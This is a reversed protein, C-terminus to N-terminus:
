SKAGPDTGMYSDYHKKYQYYPGYGHYAVRSHPVDNMVVALNAVGVDQFRQLTHQVARKRSTAPRAMVLVCNALGALSLADSVIGLPPADIIIRDFNARAWALLDAVKAGGVLEAPRADGSSRSAIISLNRCESPYVIDQPRADQSALYELLGRQDTPMPFIGGVRPRRLDFDVLLTKQGNLACATALNCCTTTKGEEPLSSAVLIMQTQERYVVSDLVSRLGAFAEAMDKFCQTYSATAIKKRNSTKVHPIIALIKIGTRAEIDSADVVRDEVSVSLMALGLGGVLGVLLALLLIQLPRPRIQIPDSAAVVQKVTATNEDASLRAEQIRSLVGRYSSDAASRTRELAAIKMEGTLIDRELTSALELQQEMKQRLGKAQEGYLALNAASTSKARNLAAQAQERYVAVAQSQAQVAPHAPTYRSLLANREAVAARLRDLTNEIGLAQPIDAPLHGANLSDLLKQELAARNEIQTLSENFSLLASEVTKRQGELVDMHHEQRADFLMKDAAELDNKQSQAQAELWAV